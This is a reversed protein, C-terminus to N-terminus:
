SLLSFLFPPLANYNLKVVTLGAMFYFAKKLHKDNLRQWIQETVQRAQFQIVSKSFRINKEVLDPYNNFTNKLKTGNSQLKKLLKSETGVVKVDGRSLADLFAKRDGRCRSYTVASGMQKVSHGDSGGTIVRNLNFGLLASKLNWRKLNESNIVEVGDAMKLLRDLQNPSYSHNCIGTFAASHPHAFVVISKYKKANEIITRIDKKISSMVTSGLYPEVDVAYFTKLDEIEYFYVLVHTGENSTIEIGPVTFLDEYTDIEVAGAIANHDTLAIGIGLQRARNAIQEVSDTGDSHVSHFHLDVVTHTATLQELEPTTFQIRNISDM